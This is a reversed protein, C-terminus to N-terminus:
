PHSSLLSVLCWRSSAKVFGDKPTIEAFERCAWRQCVRLPKYWDPGSGAWAGAAQAMQQCRVRGARLAAPGVAAGAPLWCWLIGPVGAPQVSAVKSSCDKSTLAWGGWLVTLAPYRARCAAGAVAAGAVQQARAPLFLGNRATRQSV